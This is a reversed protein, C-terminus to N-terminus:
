MKYGNLVFLNVMYLFQVIGKVLYVCVFFNYLIVAFSLSLLIGTEYSMSLSDSHICM